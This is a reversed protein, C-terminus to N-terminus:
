IYCINFRSHRFNALLKIENNIFMNSKFEFFSSFLYNPKTKLISIM